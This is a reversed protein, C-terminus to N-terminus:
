PAAYHPGSIPGPIKNFSVNGTSDVLIQYLAGAGDCYYACAFNGFENFYFGQPSTSTLENNQLPLNAFPLSITNSGLTGNSDSLGVFTRPAPQTLFAIINGANTSESTTDTGTLLGTGGLSIWQQISAQIQAQQANDVATAAQSRVNLFQPMIIAAVVALIALAVLLEILSFSNKNKPM